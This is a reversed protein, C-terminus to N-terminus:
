AKTTRWRQTTTAHHRVDGFEFIGSWRWNRVRKAGYM